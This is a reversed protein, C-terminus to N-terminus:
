GDVLWRGQRKVLRVPGAGRVFARLDGRSSAIDTGSVTAQGGAVTIARVHASRLGARVAPPLANAAAEIVEPCTLADGGGERALRLRGGATAAACARTGDGAGFAALFQEVAHSAAAREQQPSTGGCGTVLM